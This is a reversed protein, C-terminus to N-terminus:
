HCAADSGEGQTAGREGEGTIAGSTGAVSSRVGVLRADGRVGCFRPGLRGRATGGGRRALKLEGKGEGALEYEATASPKVPASKWVNNVRFGERGHVSDPEELRHAFLTPAFLTFLSGKSSESAM